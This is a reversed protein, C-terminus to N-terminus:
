LWATSESLAPVAAETTSPEPLVSVSPPAKPTNLRATRAGTLKLVCIAPMMEPAPERTTLLPETYRVFEPLEKLPSKVILAPWSTAVLAPARPVPVPVITTLPLVTRPIFVEEDIGAKPPPASTRPLTPVKVRLRERAPPPGVPSPEASMKIPLSVNVPLTM